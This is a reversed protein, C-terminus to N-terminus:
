HLKLRKWSGQQLHAEGLRRMIISLKASLSTDGAHALDVQALLTFM